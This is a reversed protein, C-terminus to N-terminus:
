GLRSSFYQRMEDLYSVLSSDSPICTSVLELCHWIEQSAPRSENSLLKSSKLSFSIKLKKLIELRSPVLRSNEDRRASFHSLVTFTKDM